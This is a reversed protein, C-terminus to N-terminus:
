ITQQGGAQGPEGAINCADRHRHRHSQTQTETHIMIDTYTQTRRHIDTHTDHHRHIDTYTQTHRHIYTKKDTQTQRHIDTYTQTHRHIDTHTQTQTHRHRHTDAPHGGGRASDPKRRSLSNASHPAEVTSPAGTVGTGTVAELLLDPNGPRRPGPLPRSCPKATGTSM